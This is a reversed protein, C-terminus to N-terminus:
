LGNVFEPLKIELGTSTVAISNKQQCTERGLVIVDIAGTIKTLVLEM